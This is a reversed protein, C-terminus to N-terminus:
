RDLDVGDSAALACIAAEAERWPIDPQPEGQTLELEKRWGEHEQRLMRLDVTTRPKAMGTELDRIRADMQRLLHQGAERVNAVFTDVPLEHCGREATTRWAAIGDVRLRADWHIRLADGVRVFVIEPTAQLYQSQLRREGLWRMAKYHLRDLDRSSSTPARDLDLLWHIGHDHAVLREFFPPLPAIAIRAADFLDRVVYALQYDARRHKSQWHALIADSYEFLVEEGLPMWFDGLTLIPWSLHPQGECLWPEIEEVPFLEFEILAMASMSHSSHRQKATAEDGHSMRRRRTRGRGSGTGGQDNPKGRFPTFTGDAASRHESHQQRLPYARVRAGPIPQGAEDVVRGPFM